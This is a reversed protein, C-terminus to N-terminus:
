ENSNDKINKILGYSEMTNYTIQQGLSMMNFDEVADLFEIFMRILDYRISNQGTYDNAKIEKVEKSLPNMVNKTDDFEYKETIEVENSRDNPNGFVFDCIKNIDYIFTSNKM